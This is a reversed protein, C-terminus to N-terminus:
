VYNILNIQSRELEPDTFRFLKQLEVSEFSFGLEKLVLKFKAPNLKYSYLQNTMGIISIEMLDEPLGSFSMIEQALAQQNLNKCILILASTAEEFPPYYNNYELRNIILVLEASRSIIFPIQVKSCMLGLYDTCLPVLFEFEIVTCIEFEMSALEQVTYKNHVLCKRALPISIPQVDEFKSALVMSVTGILLLKEPPIAKPGRKLYKDMIYVSLFFTNGSSNMKTLVEVMWDIMRTRLIPTIIQGKLSNYCSSFLLDSNVSPKISRASFYLPYPNSTLNM